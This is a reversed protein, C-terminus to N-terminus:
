AGFKILVHLVEIRDDDPLRNYLPSSVGGTLVNQLVAGTARVRARYEQPTEAKTGKQEDAQRERPFGVGVNLRLLEKTVPSSRDATSSTPDIVSIHPKDVERG